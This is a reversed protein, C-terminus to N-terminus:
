PKPHPCPLVEIDLGGHTRCEQELLERAALRERVTAVTDTPISGQMAASDCSPFSDM